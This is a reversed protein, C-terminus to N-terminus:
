EVELLDADFWLDEHGPGLLFRWGAPLGLYPIITPLYEPLHEVCLPQFFDDDASYEGCWVFWGTTDEVAPQRLGHIPQEGVTALALGIKLHPPSSEFEAGVRRCIATQIEDM